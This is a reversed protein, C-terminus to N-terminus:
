RLLIKSTWGMKDGSKGCAKTGSKYGKLAKKGSDSTKLWCLKDEERFVWFNCTAERQCLWACAAPHGVPLDSQGPIGNGYYDTNDEVICGAAPATKTFPLTNDPNLKVYVLTGGDNEELDGFDPVPLPLFITFLDLM